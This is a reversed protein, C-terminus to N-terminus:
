IRRRTIQRFVASAAIVHSFYVATLGLAAVSSTVIWTEPPQFAIVVIALITGIAAERKARPRVVQEWNAGTLRVPFDRHAHLLGSIMANVAAAVLFAATLAALSVMLLAALYTAFQAELIGQEAVYVTRLTGDVGLLALADPSLGAAHLRAQTKEAGTFIINGTSALSVVNRDNFFETVSSVELILVEHLFSLKGLSGGDAVPFSVDVVPEYPTLGDLVQTISLDRGSWLQLSPGLERSITDEITSKQVERLPQEAVSNKMLSIWQPNVLAIASYQGFDGEWSEESIMYSLSAEQDDEASRVVRTFQPAVTDMYEEDMGFAVQVQDSLQNWAGLQAATQRANHAASWAPGSYAILTVLTAAQVVSATWRLTHVAPRRRAFLATGPWSASSMTLAVVLFAAVTVAAFLLTATAFAPVYVWGRLAGVLMAAATFVGTACGILTLFFGGLDQAQIRWPAGGALVRLARSRARIALWFVAMATILACAAIVPAAFGSDQFLVRISDLPAADTREVGIGLVTLQEVAEGLQTTNTVLYTGDAPSNALREIGAIRAPEYDGFWRIQAQPSHTGLDVLVQAGTNDLDPLLKYVGLGLDSDMARLVPLAADGRLSSDTFDLVIRSQVGLAQPYSRDHFDTAVAGLFALLAYLTIAAAAIAKKYM